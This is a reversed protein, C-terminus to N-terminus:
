SFDKSVFFIILNLINLKNKTRCLKIVTLNENLFTIHLWIHLKRDTNRISM